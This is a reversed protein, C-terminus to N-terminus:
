NELKKFVALFEEAPRAGNLQFKDDIAFLPVGSCSWRARFEREERRVENRGIVEDELLTEVVDMPMGALQACERLVQPEGLSKEQEFYATFLAEVVRDQLESGGVERAMWILRHSDFTNGILGGYSFNIGVSAGVQKMQPVMQKVRDPGFRENYYQMKNLGKGKPLRENLQFPRWRVDFQQHSSCQALATELRRKGV